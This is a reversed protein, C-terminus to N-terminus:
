QLVTFDSSQISITHNLKDNSYRVSTMDNIDSSVELGHEYFPVFSPSLASHLMEM